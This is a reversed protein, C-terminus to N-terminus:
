VHRRLPHAQDHALAPARLLHVHERELYPLYQGAAPLIPVDAALLAIRIPSVAASLKFFDYFNSNSHELGTSSKVSHPIINASFLAFSSYRPSIDPPYSCLSTGRDTNEWNIRRHIAEWSEAAAHCHIPSGLIQAFGRQHRNAALSTPTHPTLLHSMGAGHGMSRGGSRVRSLRLGALRNSRRDGHKIAHAGDGYVGESWRALQPTWLRNVRM